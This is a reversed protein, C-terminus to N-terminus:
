RKLTYLGGEIEVVEEDEALREKIKDEKMDPFRAYIEQLTKPERSLFCKLLQITSPIHTGALESFRAIYEDRDRRGVVGFGIRVFLEPHQTITARISVNKEDPMKKFLERNRMPGDKLLDYIRKHLTVM